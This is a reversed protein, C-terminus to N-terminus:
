EAILGLLQGHVGTTKKRFRSKKSRPSKSDIKLSAMQNRSQQYADDDEDADSDLSAFSSEEDFSDDDSDLSSWDSNLTNGTSCADNRSHSAVSGLFNKHSRM